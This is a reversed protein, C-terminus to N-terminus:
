IIALEKRYKMVFLAEAEPLHNIWDPESSSNGAINEAVEEAKLNEEKYLPETIIVFGENILNNIEYLWGHKKLEEYESPTIYIVSFYKKLLDSSSCQFVSIFPGTNSIGIIKSM